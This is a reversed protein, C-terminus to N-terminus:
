RDGARARAAAIRDVVYTFTRWAPLITLTATIIATATFVVWGDRANAVAVKNGIRPGHWFSLWPSFGACSMRRVATM